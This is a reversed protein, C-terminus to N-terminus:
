YITPIERVYEEKRYYEWLLKIATYTKGYEKTGTIFVIRSKDLADKIEDYELPAVYLDDIRQYWFDYSSIKELFSSILKLGPNKDRLQPYVNLLSKVPVAMVLNPDAKNKKDYIRDIMGIIKGTKTDVVPSGSMGEEVDTAYLQIMRITETNLNYDISGLIRGDSALGTPFEDSKRFGKSIFEHKPEVSESLPLPILEEGNKKLEQQDDEFLKLFAIDNILDLYQEKNENEKILTTASITQKTQPFYVQINDHVEKSELNGIGMESRLFELGRSPIPPCNGELLCLSTRVTM